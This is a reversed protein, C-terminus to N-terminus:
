STARTVDPLIRLKKGRRPTRMDTGDTWQIDYYINVQDNLGIKASEVSELRVEIQGPSVTVSTIAGNAPTGAAGGAIYQLGDGADGPNSLLIQFASATDADDPYERGTIWIKTWGTLDGLNGITEIWTDGRVMELNEGQMTKRVGTLSLLSNVISSVLTSLTAALGGITETDTYISVYVDCWEVGALDSGLIGLHDAYTEVASLQVEIQCGGAPSVAPLTSPNAFAGGDQSLQFDGAAITPNVQFTGPLAQSNVTLYIKAAEGKKIPVGSM